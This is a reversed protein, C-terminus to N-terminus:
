PPRRLSRPPRGTTPFTGSSSTPSSPRCSNLTLFLPTRSHHELITGKRCITMAPGNGRVKPVILKSATPCLNLLRNRFEEKVAPPYTAYTTKATDLLCLLSYLHMENTVDLPHQPGKNTIYAHQPSQLIQFASQAATASTKFLTLLEFARKKEDDTSPVLPSSSVAVASLILNYQNSDM